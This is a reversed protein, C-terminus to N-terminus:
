SLSDIRVVAYPLLSLDLAGASTALLQGAQGRFDEPSRVADLANTEDLVRVRVRQGLNRVTVQQPQPSLNALLVRVRGNRRLALGDVKLADNGSSPIVEGGAFEGVDALVHYLPCVAGPLSRFKDPVPSGSETEMVGRWGTTEYYTLSAAGAQSLYKLSAATWGAGLLSMQRPDVQYPLQGPPTVPEPGSAYYNVRMKFTVPSVIVPMDDAFHRATTVTAAQAALTEVVSANDFAHIQPTIAFVAADLLSFPPRSRLMWILDANTGAAFRAAPDYDDLYKRAAEVVENVPSGGWFVEKAPYLLWTAVPPKVEELVGRLEKVEQDGREADSILLGVELPVDLARAEQTARRLADPYNSDSLRLNVRLHHLKLAKLREVERENLPQGHSAVGLGIPPLPAGQPAELTFTLPAAEVSFGAAGGGTPLAARKDILRLTVSQAIRTGAVVEAPYPIRLPTSFTKFSADTWNRQDEMEFVDGTFRVEAWVGPLVENTLAQMDAFPVVPQSPVITAPLNAEETAGDV